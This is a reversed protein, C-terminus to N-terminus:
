SADLGANILAVDATKTLDFLSNCRASRNERWDAANELTRHVKVVGCEFVRDCFVPLGNYRGLNLSAPVQVGAKRMVHCEEDHERREYADGAVAALGIIGGGVSLLVRKCEM